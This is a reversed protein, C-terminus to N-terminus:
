FKFLPISLWLHGSIPTSYPWVLLVVQDLRGTRQTSCPGYFSVGALRWCLKQCFFSWWGGGLEVWNFPAVERYDEEDLYGRKWITM